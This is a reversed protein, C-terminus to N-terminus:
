ASCHFSKFLWPIPLFPPTSPETNPSPKGVNFNWITTPWLQSVGTPVQTLRSSPEVLVLFIGALSPPLLHPNPLLVLYLISQRPSLPNPQPYSALAMGPRPQQCLLILTHARLPPRSLTRMQPMPYTITGLPASLPLFSVSSHIAVTSHPLSAM